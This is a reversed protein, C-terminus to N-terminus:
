GQDDTSSGSRFALFVRTFNIPLRSSAAHSLKPHDLEDREVANHLAQAAGVFIALAPEIKATPASGVAVVHQRLTSALADTLGRGIKEAALRVLVHRRVPRVFGRVVGM